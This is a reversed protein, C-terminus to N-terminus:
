RRCGMVSDTLQWHSNAAYSNQECKVEHKHWNCNRLKPYKQKFKRWNESVNRGRLDLEGLSGGESVIEQSM